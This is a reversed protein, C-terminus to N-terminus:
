PTIISARCTMSSRLAATRPIIATCRGRFSSGFLSENSGNAANVANLSDSRFAAYSYFRMARDGIDLRMPETLTDVKDTWVGKVFTMDYAIEYRVTDCVEQKMRFNFSEVGAKAAAPLMLVVAFLVASMNRM